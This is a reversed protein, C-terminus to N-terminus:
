VCQHRQRWQQFLSQKRDAHLNKLLITENMYEGDDVYLHDGANLKSIAHPITAWAKKASNGLGSNSDSGDMRVYYTNYPRSCSVFAVIIMVYFIIMFFSQTKAGKRSSRKQNKMHELGRENKQLAELVGEYAPKPQFDNDFLLPSENTRWGRDQGDRLRWFHIYSVGSEKAM